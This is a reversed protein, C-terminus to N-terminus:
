TQIGVILVPKKAARYGKIDGSVTSITQDVMYSLYLNVDKFDISM